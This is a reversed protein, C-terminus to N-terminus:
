FFFTKPMIPCVLSLISWDSEQKDCSEEGSTEGRRELQMNSPLLELM